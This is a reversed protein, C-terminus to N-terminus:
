AKEAHIENFQLVLKEDPKGIVWQRDKGFGESVIVSTHFNTFVLAVAYRIVLM